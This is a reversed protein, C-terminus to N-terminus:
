ATRGPPRQPLPGCNITSVTNHALVRALFAEAVAPPRGNRIVRILADRQKESLRSGKALSRCVDRTFRYVSASTGVNSSEHMGDRALRGKSIRQAEQALATDLAHQINDTASMAHWSSDGSGFSFTLSSM